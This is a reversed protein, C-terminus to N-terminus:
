HTVLREIQERRKEYLRNLSTSVSKVLRPDASKPSGGQFPPQPDYEIGLQIAQAIEEGFLVSAVVLALDIGSTVGAGTIRNRDIVVREAVPQAGLLSLLDRYRWHTTARYGQLLGAAGLILAGTCVSTILRATQGQERLFSLFREDEMVLQQGPGGPVCLVDFTPASEFTTDPMMTGGQETRIPELRAAVLYVHTAPLRCFVEYPGALDLLTFNPFLVVGVSLGQTSQAM